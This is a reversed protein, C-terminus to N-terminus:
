RISLCNPGHLWCTDSQEHRDRRLRTVKAFTGTLMAQGLAAAVHEDRAEQLSYIAVMSLFRARYEQAQDHTILVTMGKGLTSPMGPMGSTLPALLRGGDSLADLWADLIHTAGAHVLVADVGSPLDKTGNGLHVSVWPWEALNVRAREVFGPDIEIAHVMGRPGVGHAILATFYGTACGIHIVRSGEGIGLNELWTAILSPQGNYLARAPDLAYATDHYVHRPDADETVRPGAMSFM